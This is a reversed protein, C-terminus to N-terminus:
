RECADLIQSVVLEPDAHPNAAVSRLWVGGDITALSVWANALRDRVTRADGQRPRWNVVGTIHHNWLELRDDEEVLTCLRDALAMDGEVRTAVGRSGWALLTAALGIASAGHSGLVGINPAALYSGGFNLAAHARNVDAFLVIGSEKPQYLWKHGSVSVSDAREIGALRHAYRGSFRLPGAWAADVHRWAAGVGGDLPDVAGTSVTGATLVLAAHDLDGLADSRMRQRDDTPVSRLPLGLLNAAKVVSVHAAESAVVERVGAVERAAWLATLNAVSSGPVLHGGSMGFFPCLWAITRQELERAAPAADPHLLNQNVSAAWAAAAWTMWPTPPDMHAFYGPHDLRVASRLAPGVLQELAAHDGVGDEPLTDPLDLPVPRPVPTGPAGRWEILQDLAWRLGEADVGFEEIASGGRQIVVWARSAQM